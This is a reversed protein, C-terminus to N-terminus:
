CGWGIQRQASASGYGGSGSNSWEDPTLRAELEEILLESRERHGAGPAPESRESHGARDFTQGHRAGPVPCRASDKRRFFRMWM